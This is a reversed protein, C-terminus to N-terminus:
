CGIEVPSLALVDLLRLVQIEIAPLAQDPSCHPQDDVDWFTVHELWEPFHESIMPRHETSKLAIICDAKEFDEGCIQARTESTHRLNIGRKALAKITHGSLPLNNPVLHIALGRSFARWGLGRIEAHHNFVAEAFRSRYYNGTCIFLLKKMM